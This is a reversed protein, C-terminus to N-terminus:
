MIDASDKQLQPTAVEVEKFHCRNARRYLLEKLTSGVNIQSIRVNRKSCKEPVPGNM